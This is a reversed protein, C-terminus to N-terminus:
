HRHTQFNCKKFFPCIWISSVCSALWSTRRLICNKLTTKYGHVLRVVSKLSSSLGAASSFPDRGCSVVPVLASPLRQLRCSGVGWRATLLARPGGGGPVGAATKALDSLM